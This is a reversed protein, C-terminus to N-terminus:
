GSVESSRARPVSSIQMINFQNKNKLAALLGILIVDLEALESAIPRIDSM